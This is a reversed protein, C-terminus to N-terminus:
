LSQTTTTLGTSTNTQRVGEAHSKHAYQNGLANGQAVTSHVKPARAHVRHPFATGLYGLANGQAITSHVKPAGIAQQM